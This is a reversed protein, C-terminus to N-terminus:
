ELIDKGAGMNTVNWWIFQTRVIAHFNRCPMFRKKWVLKKGKYDKGSITKTELIYRCALCKGCKKMGKQNRHQRLPAAKARMLTDRIYEQRRCSVLPPEPFVSGLVDDQNVM